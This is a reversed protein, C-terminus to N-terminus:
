GAQPSVVAYGSRIKARALSQYLEGLDDALRMHSFRSAVFERGKRGMSQCLQRDQMLYEVAHSLKRTDCGVLIGNEFVEMGNLNRGAGVMLDRVGGVATSIIAKSSAMAELLAVPTGENVSTAVVFDLDAYIISLDRRWGMLHVIGGLGNRRISAECEQRLDGDGVMVFQPAPLHDRFTAACEIFSGPSKIATLRGVWGVHPQEPRSGIEAQLAGNHGTVSLFPQLDFGLPITAVKCAPAIRYVEVLEKRQSESVSVICDTYRALGREIALFTRTVLPSFYGSFVHGHFTHVRIPTGAIIAAIRGVTGAKATHTHVITPRERRFIRVLSWLTQIDRFPSIRRSMSRIKIPTVDNAQALYDMSAEKPSVEGTVLLTRYGRRRFAETMLIAQIAPGGVNLRAIVRAISIDSTSTM